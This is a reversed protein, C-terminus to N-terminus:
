LLKHQVFLIIDNITTLAEAESNSIKIAFSAELAVVIDVDVMSDVEFFYSLNKSFDDDPDLQSLKTDLEQELLHIIEIVVEKSVGKDLYYKQYFESPTLSPRGMFSRKIKELHKNNDYKVWFFFLLSLAVGFYIYDM